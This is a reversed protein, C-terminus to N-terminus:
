AVMPPRVSSLFTPRGSRVPVVKQAQLAAEIAALRQELDHRESLRSHAEFVAVAARVAVAEIVSENAIRVLREATLPLGNRLVALAGQVVEGRAAEVEAWWEPVAKWRQATRRSVGAAKAADGIRGHEIFAAVLREHYPRRVTPNKVPTDSDAM